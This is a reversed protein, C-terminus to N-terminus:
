GVGGRPAIPEAAGLLEELAEAPVRDWDPPPPALRRKEETSQFCVWGHELRPGVPRRRRDRIVRREPHYNPTPTRRRDTGSRAPAFTRVPAVDWALWETGRSDRFERLAM